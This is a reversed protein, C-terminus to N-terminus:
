FVRDRFVHDIGSFAEDSMHDDCAADGEDLRTRVKLRECRVHRRRDLDHDPEVIMKPRHDLVSAPKFDKLNILHRFLPNRGDNMEIIVCNLSCAVKPASTFCIIDM